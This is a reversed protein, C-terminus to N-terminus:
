WDWGSLAQVDNNLMELTIRTFNATDRLEADSIKLDVVHPLYEPPM